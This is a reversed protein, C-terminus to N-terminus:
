CTVMTTRPVQTELVSRRIEGAAEERFRCVTALLHASIVAESHYIAIASFHVALWFAAARAGTRYGWM